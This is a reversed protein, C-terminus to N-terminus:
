DDRATRSHEEVLRAITRVQERAYAGDSGQVGMAPLSDGDSLDFVLWPEGQPLRVGLVEAYELRRRRLLNVVTLGDEDVEVRVSALRHLAAAGLVGVGVISIRDLLGFQGPLVLAGGVMAVVVLAAMPYIVRRAWLPRFTTPPTTM